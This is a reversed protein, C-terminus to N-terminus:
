QVQDSQMNSEDSPNIFAILVLLFYTLFNLPYITFFYSLNFQIVTLIFLAATVGLSIGAMKTRGSKKLKKFKKFGTFIGGSLLSLILATVIIGDNKIFYFYVNDYEFHNKLSFDGWLINKVSATKLYKTIEEFYVKRAAISTYQTTFRYTNDSIPNYPIKLFDWSFSPKGAPKINVEEYSKIGNLSTYSSVSNNVKGTLKNFFGLGYFILSSIIMLVCVRKLSSLRPRSIFLVFLTGVIMSLLAAASASLLISGYFLCLASYWYASVESELVRPLAIMFLIVAFTGFCIPSQLTSLVANELTFAPVFLHTYYGFLSVSVGIITLWDLHKIIDHESKIILPFILPLFVYQVNKIDRQFVDIPNKHSLHAVAVSLLIIHAIIFFLTWYDYKEWKRYLPGAPNKRNCYLGGLGLFVIIAWPADKLISFYLPMSPAQGGKDWPFYFYRYGNYLIAFLLFAKFLNKYNLASLLM